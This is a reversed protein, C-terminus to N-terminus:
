VRLRAAVDAEFSWAPHTKSADQIVAGRKVVYGSVGETGFILHLLDPYMQFGIYDEGSLLSEGEPHTHWTALMEDEYRILDEPKTSFMKDPQSSVNELEVVEGSKLILGVRENM